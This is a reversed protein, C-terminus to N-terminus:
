QVRGKGTGSKGTMELRCKNGDAALLTGTGSATTEGEMKFEFVCELTKGKMVKTEMERFLKEAENPESAPLLLMMVLYAFM